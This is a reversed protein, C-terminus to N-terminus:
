IGKRTWAAATSLVTMYISEWLAEPVLSLVQSLSM